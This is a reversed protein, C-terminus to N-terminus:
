RQYCRMYWSAIMIRADGISSQFDIGEMSERKELVAMLPTAGPNLLAGILLPRESIDITVTDEFGGPVKVQECRLDKADFHFQQEGIVMTIRDPPSDERTVWRMRLNLQWDGARERLSYIELSQRPVLTAEIRSVGSVEDVSEPLREAIIEGFSRVALPVKVTDWRSVTTAGRRQDNLKRVTLEHRDGAKLGDRWKQAQEANEIRQGDIMLLLELQELDVHVNGQGTTLVRYCGYSVGPGQRKQARLQRDVEAKSVIAFDLWPREWDVQIRALNQEHTAEALTLRSLFVFVLLLCLRTPM